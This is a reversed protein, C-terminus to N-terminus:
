RSSEKRTGSCLSSRVMVLAVNTSGLSMRLRARSPRLLEVLGGVNFVSKNMDSLADVEIASGDRELFRRPSM